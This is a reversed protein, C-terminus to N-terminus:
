TQENSMKDSQSSDTSTKSFPTQHSLPPLEQVISLNSNSEKTHISPFLFYFVLLLLVPVFFIPPPLTVTLPRRLLSASASRKQDPVPKASSAPHDDDHHPQAM